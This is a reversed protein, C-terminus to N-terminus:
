VGTCLSQVRNGIFGVFGFGWCALDGAVLTGFGFCVFITEMDNEMKVIHGMCIYTHTYM